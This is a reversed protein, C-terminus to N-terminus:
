QYQEYFRNLNRAFDKVDSFLLLHPPINFKELLAHFDREMNKINRRDANTLTYNGIRVKSFSNDGFARFAESGRSMPLLVIKYFLAMELFLCSPKFNKGVSGYYEISESHAYKKFIPYYWDYQEQIQTSINNPLKEIFIGM